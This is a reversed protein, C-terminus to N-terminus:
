DDEGEQSHCPQCREALAQIPSQLKSITVPPVADAGGKTDKSKFDEPDVKLTRFGLTLTVCWRIDIKFASSQLIFSWLRVEAGGKADKPKPQLWKFDEPDVKLTVTYIVTALILFLNFGVAVALSAELTIDVRCCM